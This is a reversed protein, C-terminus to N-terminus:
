KMKSMRWEGDNQESQAMAMDDDPAISRYRSSPGLRMIQSSRYRSSPGLRMIQSSRYRSSPGLRMIQSSRYRSSPWLRM